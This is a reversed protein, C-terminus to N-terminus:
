KAVEPRGALGCFGVRETATAIWRWAMCGKGYCADDTEGEMHIMRQPCSKRKAREETLIM